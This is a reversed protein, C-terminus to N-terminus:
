AQAPSTKGYWKMLPTVSVGHLVVSATITAFTLGALREAVHGEAGHQLAYALYYISGVGRVGFWSILGRQAANSTSGVLGVMVALPRVVLFLLPVFWLTDRPLLAATLSGGILLVIGVECLRELQENFGLVAKAMYAPASGADTAIEAGGEATAAADTVDPPADGGSHGSEVRRLAVGAAFAALFGYTHLLIAVGYAFALLGLSLFEDLGVAEKYTRRLYLVLRAVVTGAALGVALGGAISWAVDVALWKWGLTGLDHLGLLGLGLLVFPFATGDNLGAEGTLGFRLRDRDTPHAVQVDSALVPDTPALIAGLLVAAGLPLGALLVGVAAILAVTIMMSVSALRVPLWWGRDSLPLRLKLGATFLSVIVTFETVREFLASYRIPHLRILGAGWPGLAVGVLLYLLATTLPLRKLLTGSLAMVVLLLGGVVYWITFGLLEETLAM